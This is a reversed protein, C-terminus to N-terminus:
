RNITSKNIKDMKNIKFKIEQMISAQYKDVDQTKTKSAQYKDVDQTKKIKSAQYKDVDQTKKTKSAQYKDVDQTM